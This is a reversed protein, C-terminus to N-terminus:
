WTVPLEVPGCAQPSHYTFRLEEEPIALRLDPIRRFLTLYVIELQLPALAHALCRHPGHGFAIHRAGSEERLLDLSNADPCLATDRNALVLPLAVGDGARFLTEGVWVDELAVRMPTADNLSYYRVIESVAGAMRDPETLLLRRDAPNRLLEAVGLSILTAITKHNGVTLLHLLSATEGRDVRGTKQLYHSIRHSILDDGLDNEKEALVGDLHGHLRAAAAEELASTDSRVLLEETYTRVKALEETPIGLLIEQMRWAAAVSLHPVLDVPREPMRAIEDVVEDIAQQIRPRMKALRTGSFYGSISKREQLHEPGDLNPLFPAFHKLKDLARASLKPFDARTKDASFRRDSLVLRAYELNAIVWVIQGTPLRARGIGKERMLEYEAPIEEPRARRLPFGPLATEDIDTM